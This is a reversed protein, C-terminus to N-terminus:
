VEAAATVGARAGHGVAAPDLEVVTALEGRGGGRGGDGRAARREVAPVVPVGLVAPGEVVQALEQEVPDGVLGHRVVGRAHHRAQRGVTAGPQLVHALEGVLLLRGGDAHAVEELHPALLSPSGARDGVDFPCQGVAAQTGISASIRM